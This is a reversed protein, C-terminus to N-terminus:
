PQYGRRRGIAALPGLLARQLSLPLLPLGVEDLYEHTLVVTHLLSPMGRANTRGARALAVFTEFVTETRLAPRFEVVAHLEVAAVNRFGHMTGAPVTVFEGAKVTRKRGGVRGSLTGALVETREEQRPHVHPPAIVHHAPAFYEMSLLTGETEAATARFRVREGTVPNDIYEGARAV